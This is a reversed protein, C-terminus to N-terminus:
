KPKSMRLSEAFLRLQDGLGNVVTFIILPVDHGLTANLV